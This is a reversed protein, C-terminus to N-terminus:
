FPITKCGFSTPYIAGVCGNTCSANVLKVMAKNNLFSSVSELFFLSSKHSKKPGVPVM